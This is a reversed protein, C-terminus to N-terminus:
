YGELMEIIEQKTLGVLDARRFLSWWELKFEEYIDPNKIRAKGIGNGAEEFEIAWRPKRGVGSWKQEQNAPNAYMARHKVEEYTIGHRAMKDHLLYAESRFVNRLDVFCDQIMHLRNEIETKIQNQTHLLDGMDWKSMGTDHQEYEADEILHFRNEIETEAKKQTELLIELPAEGLGTEHPEYEGCECCNCIDTM